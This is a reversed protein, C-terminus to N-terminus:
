LRVDQVLVGCLSEITSKSVTCRLSPQLLRRLMYTHNILLRLHMQQNKNIFSAKFNNLKITNQQKNNNASKTTELDTMTNSNHWQQM